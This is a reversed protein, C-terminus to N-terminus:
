SRQADAMLLSAFKQTAQGSFIFYSFQTTEINRTFYKMSFTLIFKIPLTSKCNLFNCRQQLENSYM